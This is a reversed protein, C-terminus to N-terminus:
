GDDDDETGSSKLALALFMALFTCRAGAFAGAFFVALSSM